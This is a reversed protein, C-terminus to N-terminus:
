EGGAKLANEWADEAQSIKNAKLAAIAQGCSITAMERTTMVGRPAKAAAVMDELASEGQKGERMRATARKFYAITLNRQAVPLTPAAGAEKVATELVSVAQDYRENDAYIPGLETYIAALDPGRGADRRQLAIQAAKEYAVQAASTKRQLLLSRAL